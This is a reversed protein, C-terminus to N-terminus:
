RYAEHLGHTTDEVECKNGLVVHVGCFSKSPKLIGLHQEMSVLDDKHIEADELTKVKGFQVRHLMVGFGDHVEDSRVIVVCLISLSKM